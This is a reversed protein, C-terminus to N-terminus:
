KDTVGVAKVLALVKMNRSTGVEEAVLSVVEVVALENSSYSGVVMGNNLAVVVAAVNVEVVFKDMSIAAVVVEELGNEVVAKVEAMYLVVEVEVGMQPTSEVVAMVVVPQLMNRVVVVLENGNMEGVMVAVVLGMHFGVMMVAVLVALQKHFVAVALEQIHPAMAAPLQLTVRKVEAVVKRNIRKLIKRQCLCCSTVSRRTATATALKHTKITIIRKKKIIM